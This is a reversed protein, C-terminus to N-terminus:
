EIGVICLLYFKYKEKLLLKKEVLIIASGNIVQELLSIFVSSPKYITITYSLEKTNLLETQQSHPM